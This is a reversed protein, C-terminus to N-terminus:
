PKEVAAWEGPTNINAVDAGAAVVLCGAEEAVDRVRYRGAELAARVWPLARVHWFACLPNARQGAGMAAVVAAGGPGAGAWLARLAEPTVGVTDCALILNWESRGLALAAEIGSLPGCGAYREGLAELGLGMYREPAGVLAVPDAVEAAIRALHQVLVGEGYPLLAKDRGMRRSEGGTLIFGACGM